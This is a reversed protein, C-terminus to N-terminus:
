VSYYKKEELERVIEIEMIDDQVEQHTKVTQQRYLDFNLDIPLQYRAYRHSM